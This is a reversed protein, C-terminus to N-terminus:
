RSAANNVGGKIKFITLLISTPILVVLLISFFVLVKVASYKLAIIGALSVFFSSIIFFKITDRRMKMEMGKEVINSIDVDLVIDDTIKDIADLKKFDKSDKM